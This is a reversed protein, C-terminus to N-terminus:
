QSGSVYNTDFRTNNTQRPAVPPKPPGGLGPPLPPGHGLNYVLDRWTQRETPTMAEWRGADKLFQQREPPTLGAFKEFSRFCQVRQMPTLNGFGELTKEMQHREQESLTSLVHAKEEGTLEFLDRFRRLITARQEQSLSQWRRLAEELKQRDSSSMQEVPQGPRPSHVARETFYRIMVENERLRQKLDEPLSDWQELRDQVLKRTAAPIQELQFARNTAPTALLRVLYFHLETVQLRLKCEEPKLSAYEHLKALIQKQTEAPRNTLFNRWESPNMALLERFFDVPSRAPPMPAPSTFAPETAGSAAFSTLVALGVGLWFTRRKLRNM